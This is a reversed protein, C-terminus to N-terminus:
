VFNSMCNSYTHNILRFCFQLTFKFFQITM